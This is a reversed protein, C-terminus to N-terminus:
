TSTVLILVRVLPGESEKKGAVSAWHTIVPPEPLIFSQRGRKHKALIVGEKNNKKAHAFLIGKM